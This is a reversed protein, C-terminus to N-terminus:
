ASLKENPPTIEQFKHGNKTLFAVASKADDGLGPKWGEGLAFEWVDANTMPVGSWWRAVSGTASALAKVGATKSMAPKRGGAWDNWARIAEPAHDHIVPIAEGCKKCRVGKLSLNMDTNEEILEPQGGCPCAQM